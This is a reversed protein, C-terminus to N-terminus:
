HHLHEGKWIRYAATALIVTFYVGILGVGFFAQPSSHMANEILELIMSMIHMM